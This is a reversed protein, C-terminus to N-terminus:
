SVFLSPKFGNSNKVAVYIDTESLIEFANISLVAKRFNIDIIENVIAAGQLDM